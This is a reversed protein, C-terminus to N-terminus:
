DFKPKIDQWPAIEEFAKSAQLITVEDFRPGIIQMGIPLGEHSWGCPISAAPHGTLNLPYTYPIWADIDSIKVGNIQDPYLKNLEFATCPLTPTILLDYDKFVKNIEAFIIERKLEATKIDEVSYTLGLNIGAVLDPDLKNQWKPLLQKLPYAFGTTWFIKIVSEADKIDINVKDISWNFELFKQISNFVTKEVESDLAKTNGLDFSYAINLNEPKDNLMDLYKINQNPLSNRDSSDPGIMVDLMMAADKVYRVIPGKHVLTGLYGNSSLVTHPIRGYNPKLGYVGCFSSPIRISGGGDSGLALPSLGSGVAAAAGGSSGGPTKDLRWPNKTQGFILNDTTAKFGFPPTNTKGLLVIGSHKLRKVVIEDDKPVYNELLKSGFTTRVGKILTEDKISTPIGNLLGLKEGKKVKNDADKAMQRALEFTTTCYANIMPNINEIREIFIETIEQSTLEQRKIAEFMEYASMFSIKEKNLFGM